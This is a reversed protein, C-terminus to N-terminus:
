SSIWPYHSVMNDRDAEIVGMRHVLLWNRKEDLATRYTVPEEQGRSERRQPYHPVCYKWKDKPIGKGALSEAGGFTTAMITRVHPKPHERSPAHVSLVLEFHKFNDASRQRDRSLLDPGFFSSYSEFEPNVAWVYMGARVESALVPQITSEEYKKHKNSMEANPAHWDAKKFTPDVSLGRLSSAASEPIPAPSSSMTKRWDASISSTRSNDSMRRMPSERWSGGAYAPSEPIKENRDRLPSYPREYEDVSRLTDRRSPTESRDRWNSHEKWAPKHDTTGSTDQGLDDDQRWNESLNRSGRRSDNGSRRRGRVRGREGRSHKKGHEHRDHEHRPESM